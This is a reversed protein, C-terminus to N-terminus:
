SGTGSWAQQYLALARPRDGVAAVSAAYSNLVWAENDLNGVRRYIELAQGLTPSPM